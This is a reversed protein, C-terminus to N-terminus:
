ARRAKASLRWAALIRARYGLDMGDNPRIRLVLGKAVDLRPRRRRPLQM